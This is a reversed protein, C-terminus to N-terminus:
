AGINEDTIPALSTWQLIANISDPNSYISLDKFRAPRLELDARRRPHHRYAEATAGQANLTSWFDLASLGARDLRDRHGVLALNGGEDFVNHAGGDGVFTRLFTPIDVEPAAFDDHLKTRSSTSFSTPSPLETAWPSTRSRTRVWAPAGAVGGISLFQAVLIPAAPRTLVGQTPDTPPTTSTPLFPLPYSGTVTIVENLVAPLPMGNVDGGIGTVDNVM